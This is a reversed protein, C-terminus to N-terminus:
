AVELFTIALVDLTTEDASELGEAVGDFQLGGGSRGLVRECCLLHKRALTSTMRLRPVLRPIEGTQVDSTTRIDFLCSGERLRGELSAFPEPHCERM